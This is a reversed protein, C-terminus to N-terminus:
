SCSRRSPTRWGSLLSMRFMGQRADDERISGMGDPESRAANVLSAAYSDLLEPQLLVLNGFSMRRILGSAEVRGICTELQDRLVKTDPTHTSEAFAHYLADVTLLQRGEAKNAILFRQLDQFLATSTVKPLADRDITRHIADALEDVSWGEKASTEIYSDAQLEDRIAEIRDRSVSLGGRDARAAVLLKKLPVAGGAHARRAQRLARDWYRVGAFPDIESRADFVILALAVETLQLQHIM